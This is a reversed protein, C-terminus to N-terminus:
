KVRREIREALLTVSFELALGILCTLFVLAFLLPMDLYAKADQMMGGLSFTAGALVESSAILKLGLSLASAGERLVFPSASPLYLFFIQKKLPVGYLKSMAILGKDTQMLASLIGTYLAPFLTLFAVVVPAVGAKCWVLIILLVALTPIARLFAVCPTFFRNFSPYLYSLVAFVGAFLFSICFACVTRLLTYAFAQWFSSLILLEGASKLCTTLPPFLLPNDAVVQLLLYVGALFALAVLFTICNKWVKGKM